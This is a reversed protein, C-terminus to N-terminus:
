CRVGHGEKAKGPSDVEEEQGWNKKPKRKRRSRSHGCAGLNGGKMRADRHLKLIKKPVKGRERGSEMERDGANKWDKKLLRQLVVM